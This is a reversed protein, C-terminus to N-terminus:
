SFDLASCFFSNRKKASISYTQSKTAFNKGRKARFADGLTASRFFLPRFVLHIQQM